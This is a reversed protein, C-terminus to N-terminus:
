GTFCFIAVGGHLTHVETTVKVLAFFVIVWSAALNAMLIWNVGGMVGLDHRVLTGQDYRKLIVRDYYQQASSTWAVGDTENNFTVVPVVDSDVDETPRELNRCTAKHAWETNCFDGGWPVGEGKCAAIM